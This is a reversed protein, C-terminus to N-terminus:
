AQRFRARAAELGHARFLAVMRLETAMNGRGRIAAMVASRKANTFVDKSGMVVAIEAANKPM